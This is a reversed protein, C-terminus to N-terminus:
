GAGARAAGVLDTAAGVGTERAVAAASAGVRGPVSKASRSRQSYGRCETATDRRFRRGPLPTGHSCCPLFIM